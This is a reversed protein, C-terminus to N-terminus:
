NEWDRGNKEDGKEWEGMEWERVEGGGDKKL